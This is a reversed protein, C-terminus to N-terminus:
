TEEEGEDALLGLTRALSLRGRHLHVKVTGEACRLTEAISAVSRDELYHLAVVQAQRDSLRRVAAWLEADM